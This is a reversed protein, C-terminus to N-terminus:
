RLRKTNEMSMRTMASLKTSVKRPQSPTPAHEYQSTAKQNSRSLAALAPLFAKMTLRMPSKPKRM